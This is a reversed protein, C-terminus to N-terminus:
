SFSLQLSLMCIASRNSQSYHLKGEVDVVFAIYPGANIYYYVVEDNTRISVRVRIRVIGAASDRSEHIMGAAQGKSTPREVYTRTPVHVLVLVRNERSSLNTSKLRPFLKENKSRICHSLLIRVFNSSPASLGDLWLVGVFLSTLSETDADTLWPSLLKQLLVM